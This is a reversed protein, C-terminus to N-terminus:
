FNIKILFSIKKEFEIRAKLLILVGLYKKKKKMYCRIITMVVLFSNIIVVILHIKKKKKISPFKSEARQTKM